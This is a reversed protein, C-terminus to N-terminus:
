KKKLGPIGSSKNGSNLSLNNLSNTLTKANKQKEKEIQLNKLYVQSVEPKYEVYKSELLLNFIVIIKLGSANM